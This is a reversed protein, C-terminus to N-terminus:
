GHVNLRNAGFLTIDPGGSIPGPAIITIVPNGSGPNGGRFYAQEPGRSVPVPVLAVIAPMVAVPAVMDPKIAAYSVTVAVVTLSEAATFPAVAAEKVVAGHHVHVTAADGIDVHVFGDDHVVGGDIVHAVVATGTAGPACRSRGLLLRLSLMVNLWRWQLRPM